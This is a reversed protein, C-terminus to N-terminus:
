RRISAPYVGSVSSTSLAEEELQLFAAMKAIEGPRVIIRSHGAGRALGNGSLLHYIRRWAPNAPWAAGPIAQPDPLDPSTTDCQAALHLWTQRHVCFRTEFTLSDYAASPQVSAIKCVIERVNSLDSCSFQALAATFSQFFSDPVAERVFYEACLAGLIPACDDCRLTPLVDLHRVAVAPPEHGGTVEDALQEARAATLHMSQACRHLFSELWAAIRAKTSINKWGATSDTANLAAHVLSHQLLTSLKNTTLQTKRANIGDVSMMSEWRGGIAANMEYSRNVSNTEAVGETNIKRM